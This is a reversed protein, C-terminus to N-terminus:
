AQHAAPVLLSPKTPHGPSFVVKALFCAHNQLIAGHRQYPVASKCHNFHLAPFSSLFFSSNGKTLPARYNQGCNLWMDEQLHREM